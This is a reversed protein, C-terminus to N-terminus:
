VAGLIYKLKNIQTEWLETSEDIEDDEAFDTVILAIENTIEHIQLKFEFYYEESESDLWRFKVFSLDKKGLLEAKEEVGDWVFTFIKDKVFVDDAFWESLGSATSLRNYLVKPSSNFIYEIELKTM